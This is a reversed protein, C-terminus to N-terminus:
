GDLLELGTGQIEELSGAIQELRSPEITGAVHLFRGDDLEFRLETGLASLLLEGRGFRPHRVAAATPEPAFADVRGFTGGQYVVFADGRGDSYVDAVGAVIQDGLRPDSFREPQPPIVSFRGQLEFGDPVDDAPLRHFPGEPASAPDAPTAAGGGQDVPASIEGPDFLEDDLDADLDVEVAVRRVVAEGEVVLTEELLLGDGDVCSDAYQDETIPELPGSGLLAGSRYVQCRRGAVMRQEGAELLGADEAEDLIVAVRLAAPALGPVRAITAGDQEGGFRLRDVTAIEVSVVEDGPPAGSATELRSEFPSRVWVRDTQVGADGGPDEVRYVVRYPGGHQDIRFADDTPVPRPAADPESSETDTLVAVGTIAAGVAVAAAVLM